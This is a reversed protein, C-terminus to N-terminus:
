PSVAYPISYLFRGFEILSLLLHQRCNLQIQAKFRTQADRELGYRYEASGRCMDQPPLTTLM